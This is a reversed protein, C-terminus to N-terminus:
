FFILCIDFMNSTKWKNSLCCKLNLEISLVKPMINTVMFHIEDSCSKLKFFFFFIVFVKKYGIKCSQQWSLMGYVVKCSFCYVLNLLLILTM